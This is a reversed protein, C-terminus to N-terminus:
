QLSLQLPEFLVAALMAAALLGLLVLLVFSPLAAAAATSATVAGRASWERASRDISSSSSSLASFLKAVARAEVAWCGGAGEAACGEEASAEVGLVGVLLEL